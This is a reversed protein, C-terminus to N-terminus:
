AAPRMTWVLERHPKLSITSVPEVTDTTADFCHRQLLRSLVVRAELLALQNGICVREGAGFPFYTGPPLRARNEASMREPRFAEPTEWLDPHRHTVFQSVLVTDGKAVRVGDFTMDEIPTRFFAWVPPYLRMSEHLVMDLDPCHIDSLRTGENVEFGRAEATVRALWEPHRALLYLTWTLLNATTEYGASLFNILQDRLMRDDDDLEALMWTLLDSPREEVPIARRVRIIELVAADMVELAAALKRNAATPIWLPLSVLATLRAPLLELVTVLAETVHRASHDVDSGLIAKGVIEITVASMEQQVRFPQGRQVHEQDWRVLAGQAIRDITAIMAGLRRPHFAPNAQKRQRKWSEGEALVLGEGMLPALRQYTEGRRFLTRERQIVRHVDDPHSLLHFTKGWIDFTAVRGQTRSAEACFLLPNELFGDSSGKILHQKPPYSPPRRPVDGPARSSERRPPSSPTVTSPSSSPRTM